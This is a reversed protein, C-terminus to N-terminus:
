VGCWGQRKGGDYHRAFGERVLIDAVNVGDATVDALVRGAYKGNRVNWLEIKGKLLSKLREKAQQALEKEQPCKGRLEPTDLGNIRISTSVTQGIWIRVHAKITDGDYVSYPTIPIPGPLTEAAYAMSGFAGLITILLYKAFKIVM